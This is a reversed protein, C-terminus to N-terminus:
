PPAHDPSGHCPGAHCPSLGTPSSRKVDSNVSLSFPPYKRLTYTYGSLDRDDQIIRVEDDVLRTYHWVRTTRSQMINRGVDEVFTLYDSSYPNSAHPM